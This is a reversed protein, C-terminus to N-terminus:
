AKGRSIDRSIACLAIVRDGDRVPAVRTWLPVRRGDSLTVEVEYEDPEGSAAVRALCARVQDHAPPALHDLVSPGAVAPQGALLRDLSLSRGEVTLTAVADPAGDLIARLIREERGDRREALRGRLVAIEAAM